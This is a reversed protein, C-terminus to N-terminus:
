DSSRNPGRSSAYGRLNLVCARLAREPVAIRASRNTWLAARADGTAGESWVLVAGLRLFRDYFGRTGSFGRTTFFAEAKRDARARLTRVAAGVDLADAGDREIAVLLANPASPPLQRLKALLASGFSVANPAGRLRTVEVNFTREGRFTVTFDPGIKGAGYAEFELEVRRDALLLDAARLETRLDRRAEADAAGRLKKRIKDRHMEAFTRFRASRALWDGLEHAIADAPPGDFLEHALREVTTGSSAARTM